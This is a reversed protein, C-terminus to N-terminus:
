EIVKGKFVTIFGDDPSKDDTATSCASPRVNIISNVANKAPKSCAMPLFQQPVPKESVQCLAHAISHSAASSTM